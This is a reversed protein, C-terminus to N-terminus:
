ILGISEYPQLMSSVTVVHKLPLTETSNLLFSSTLSILGTLTSSQLSASSVPVVLNLPLTFMVLPLVSKTLLISGAVGDIVVLKLPL